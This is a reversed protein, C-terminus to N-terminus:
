EKNKINQRQQTKNSTNINQQQNQKVVVKNKQDNENSQIHANAAKTEGTLITASLMGVLLMKHYYSNM